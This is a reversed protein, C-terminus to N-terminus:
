LQASGLAYHLPSSLAKLRNGAAAGLVLFAHTQSCTGKAPRAHTRCLALAGCGVSFNASGLALREPRRTESKAKHASPGHSGCPRAKDAKLPGVLAARRAMLEEASRQSHWPRKWEREELQPQQQPTSMPKPMVMSRLPQYCSRHPATLQFCRVCRASRSGECSPLCPDPAQRRLYSMSVTSLPARQHSLYVRQSRTLGPRRPIRLLLWQLCRVPRPSLM